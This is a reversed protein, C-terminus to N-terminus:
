EKAQEWLRQQVMDKVCSPVFDSIDRGFHAVERVASSSLYMFEESATIFVTELKPNLKRNILAMQFEYDFDTVARLGKVLAVAGRKEAYEAILSDCSEITVNPIHATALRLMEMREEVSFVGVKAPNYTVAVVLQSFVRAAREIVNIHGKTVPDYSGPCIALKM